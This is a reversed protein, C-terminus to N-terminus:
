KIPNNAANTPETGPEDDDEAGIEHETLVQIFANSFFTTIKRRLLVFVVFLGIYIGTTLFYAGMPSIGAAIFAQAIGFGIFLIICCFVFLCILAFMFYSMLGSTRDILNLKLLSVNVNIYDDIRERVKGWLSM